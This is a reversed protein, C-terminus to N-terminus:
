RSGENLTEGLEVMVEFLRFKGVTANALHVSIRQNVFFYAYVAQLCSVSAIRTIPKCGRCKTSFPPNDQDDVAEIRLFGSTPFRFTEHFPGKPLEIVVGQELSAFLEVFCM